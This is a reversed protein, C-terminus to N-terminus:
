RSAQFWLFERGFEQLDILHYSPPIEPHFLERSFEPGDIQVHQLENVIRIGSAPLIVEMRRPVPWRHKRKGPPYKVLLVPDSGEGERFLSVERVDGTRLDLLIEYRLGSSGGAALIRWGEPALIPPEIRTEDNRYFLDGTMLPLLDTALIDMGLLSQFLSASDPEKFYNGERPLFGVANGESVALVLRPNGFPGLIEIRIRGPPEVALIQRFSRRKGGEFLTTRYLARMRQFPPPSFSPVSVPGATDGGGISGRERMSASCGCLGAALLISLALNRKRIRRSRIRNM